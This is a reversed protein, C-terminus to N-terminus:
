DLRESSGASRITFRGENVGGTASSSLLALDVNGSGSAISLNNFSATGKVEFDGSILLDNTITIYNPHSTTSTGFRSYAVSAFGGVQLTNGTLLYSASATGQIEFYTSPAAGIGIKRSSPTNITLNADLTMSDVFEDFDLSNSSVGSTAWSLTGSGNTTLRQNASGDASPWTYTVGRLTTTGSISATGGVELSTTTEGGSNIGLRTNGTLEFNGSASANSFSLLGSIISTGTINSNGNITLGTGVIAQANLGKSILLSGAFSNSATTLDSIFRGSIQLNSSISAKSDFFANGDFESLGSILLDNSSSLSHGTSNTGFRSYAASSYGGVQLTNGTLLYSASATGQVEFVTSPSQGIGIYYGARNITLNSDLTLSNVLEDFDLSNSTAQRVVQWSLAGSGNTQLFTSSSGDSSPWTYTVTNLKTTGTAVLKDTTATGTVTLDNTTTTGTVTATETDVKKPNSTIDGVGKTNTSPLQIVTPVIRFRSQLDSIQSKLLNLDTLSAYSFTTPQGVKAPDRQPPSQNPQNNTEPKSVNQNESGGLRESNKQTPQLLKKAQTKITDLTLAPTNTTDVAAVQKLSEDTKNLLRVSLDAANTTAKVISEANKDSVSQVKESLYILSETFVDTEYSIRDAISTIPKNLVLLSKSLSVDNRIRVEQNKSRTRIDLTPLTIKHQTSKLISIAKTKDFDAYGFVVSPLLM